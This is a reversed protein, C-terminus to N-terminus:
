HVGHGHPVCLCRPISLVKRINCVKRQRIFFYSLIARPLSRSVMESGSSRKVLRSLAISPLSIRLLDWAMSCKRRLDRLGDTVLATIRAPDGTCVFVGGQRVVISPRFRKSIVRSCMAAARKLFTYISAPDEVPVTVPQRDM